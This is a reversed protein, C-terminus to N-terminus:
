EQAIISINAIKYFAQEPLTIKGTAPWYIGFSHKLEQKKTFYGSSTLARTEAHGM